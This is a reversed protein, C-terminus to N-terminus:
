PRHSRSFTTLALQKAENMYWHSALISFARPSSTLCPTGSDRYCTPVFPDSYYMGNWCKNFKRADTEAEAILDVRANTM